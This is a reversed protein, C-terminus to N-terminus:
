KLNCWVKINPLNENTFFEEVLEKKYKQSFHTLIWQTLPNSQVFPKLRSWAMHKKQKAHELDEELIFSCEIIINPYKLIQKGKDSAFLEQTTDGSFFFEPYIVKETIDIGSFKLEKIENPKLGTYEPKLKNKIISIGYGVCPVSHDCNYFELLHPQKGLIIEIPQTNEDVGIIEYNINEKDLDMNDQEPNPNALAFMSVIYNEILRTIQKPCFIKIKPAEKNKVYLHFPLNAIHDGHGHTILIYKPQFPASIGADLMLDPQIFFNTRLGAISYGQISKTTNRLQYPPIETWPKWLQIYDSM